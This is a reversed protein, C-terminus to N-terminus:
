ETIPALEVIESNCKPRIGGSNACRIGIINCDTENDLILEFSTSGCTGCYAVIHEMYEGINTVKAM